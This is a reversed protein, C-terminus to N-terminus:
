TRQTVCECRFRLKAHVEIFFKYYNYIFAKFYFGVIIQFPDFCLKFQIIKNFEITDSAQIPKIM